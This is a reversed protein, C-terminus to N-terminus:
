LWPIKVTRTYDTWDKGKAAALTAEEAPAFLRTGVYMVAGLAAGLWTNVLFGLWPLVLLAVATYLPHKVVAYPGSTILEGRPVHTLVLVVSWAYIALGALLVVASVAFLVPPPGGVDFASPFSMNVILGAILFPLVFLIIRDGAGILARLGAVTRRGALVRTM